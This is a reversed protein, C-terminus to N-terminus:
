KTNRSQALKVKTNRRAIDDREGLIRPYGGTLITIAHILSRKTIEMIDPGIWAEIASTNNIIAITDMATTVMRSKMARMTQDITPPQSVCVETDVEMPQQQGLADLPSKRSADVYASSAVRSM